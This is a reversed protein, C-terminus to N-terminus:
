SALWEQETGEFGNQVAIQVSIKRRRIPKDGKPGQEGQDRKEQDQGKVWPAGNKNTKM